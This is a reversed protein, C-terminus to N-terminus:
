KCPQAVILKVMQMPGLNEISEINFGALKVNEVTRRNINPGYAGAILPNLLDMLVVQNTSEAHHFHRTV